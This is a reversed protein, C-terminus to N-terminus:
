QLSWRSLMTLIFAADHSNEFSDLVNLVKRRKKKGLHHMVCQFIRLDGLTLVAKFGYGASSESIFVGGFEIFLKLIKM